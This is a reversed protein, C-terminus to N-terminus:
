LTASFISRADSGYKAKLVKLATLFLLLPESLPIVIKYEFNYEWSTEFRLAKQALRPNLGTIFATLLSSVKSLAPSNM